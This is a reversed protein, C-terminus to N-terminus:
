AISKRAIRHSKMAQMQMVGTAPDNWLVPEIHRGANRGDRRIVMGLKQSFGMGVGGDQHSSVATAGLATNLLDHSNEAFVYKNMSIM